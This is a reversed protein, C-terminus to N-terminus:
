STKDRLEPWYGSGQVGYTFEQTTRHSSSGARIDQVGAAVALHLLEGAQTLGVGSPDRVFLNTGMVEELERLSRSVERSTAGIEAAALGVAQNRVTVELAILLQTWKAHKEITKM